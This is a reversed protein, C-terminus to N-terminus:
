VASVGGKIKEERDLYDINIKASASIKSIYPRMIRLKSGVRLSLSPSFKLCTVISLFSIFSADLSM